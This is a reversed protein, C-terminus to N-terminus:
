SSRLCIPINQVWQSSLSHTVYGVLNVCECKPGWLSVFKRIIHTPPHAFKSCVAYNLLCAYLTSHNLKPLFHVLHTKFHREEIVGM